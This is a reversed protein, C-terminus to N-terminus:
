SGGDLIKYETKVGFYLGRLLMEWSEVVFTSFFNRIKEWLYMKREVKKLVLQFLKCCIQQVQDVLFALMMTMAFNVSLNQFGHGFNHEFQYGQNKLTNFTENEIKWRARGAQMIKYVNETTISISTVWSFYQTKDGEIECYEIFNVMFNQHSANLPVNNVFNFRHTVGDVTTEFQTSQGTSKKAAVLDFLFKHDGSKVGTIYGFGYKQIDMLHPVNSALGDEM